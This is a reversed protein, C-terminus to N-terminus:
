LQHANEQVLFQWAAMYGLARFTRECGLRVWIRAETRAAIVRDVQAIKHITLKKNTKM